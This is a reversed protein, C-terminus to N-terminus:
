QFVNTLRHYAVLAISLWVDREPLDEVIGITKEPPLVSKPWVLVLRLMTTPNKGLCPPITGEKTRSVPM